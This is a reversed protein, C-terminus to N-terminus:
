GSRRSARRAALDDVADGKMPEAASSLSSLVAQLQKVAAARGSASAGLDDVSKALAVASAALPDTAVSLKRRALESRVAGEV